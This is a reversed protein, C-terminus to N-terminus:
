EEVWFDKEERYFIFYDYDIYMDFVKYYYFKCFYLKCVNFVDRVGKVEM